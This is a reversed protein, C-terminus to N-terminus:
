RPSRPRKEAGRIERAVADLKAPTRGTVFAAAGARAVARAVASGLAGGAGYIIASKQKLLMIPRRRNSNRKLNPSGEAVTASSPIM